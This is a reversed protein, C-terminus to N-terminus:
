ALEKGCGGAPIRPAHAAAEPQDRWNGDDPATHGPTSRADTV